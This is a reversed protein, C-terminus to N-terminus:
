EIAPPCGNTKPDGTKMGATDPCADKSDSVGDGDRDAHHDFLEVGLVFRLEPAGFDPHLGAGAAIKFRGQAGDDGIGEIRGTLLAEVGTTKSRAFGQFASEGYIEPGIVVVTHGTAGVPFRPGAAIGFLVEGGRPSDPTPSEDLSRVHVGVHGAYTLWDVNGAWLLRVMARYTDDTVYDERRGNPLILQAGVGLRFPSKAEGVLRVDYGIRADSILDPPKAADISPATFASGAVTGSEGSIALPSSLNFYVRYRDFTIAAGIDAFAQHRVVAVHQSGDDIVLPKYAYGSSLALAGGLGGRMDLDDMVVWGGGPASGYLRELAFGQAQQQARASTAWCSTLLLSLAIVRSSRM